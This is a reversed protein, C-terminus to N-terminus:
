FSSLHNGTKIVHIAICLNLDISPIHTPLFKITLKDGSFVYKVQELLSRAHNRHELAYILKPNLSSLERISKYAFTKKLLLNLLGPDTPMVFGIEAGPKAVRRMELLVELPDQVHHLLCTMLIRDFFGDAYPISEANGKVFELKSKLQPSARDIHHATVPSRLDLSIYRIKPLWEIFPLHEGSGGGLELASNVSDGVWLKELSKEFYKIGKKYPAWGSKDSFLFNQYVESYYSDLIKGRIEDSSFAL